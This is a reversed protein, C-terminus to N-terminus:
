HPIRLDRAPQDIWAAAQPRERERKQQEILAVIREDQPEREDAKIQKRRREINASLSRRERVVQELRRLVRLRFEPLGDPNGALFEQLYERSDDSLSDQLASTFREFLAPANQRTYEFFTYPFKSEDRQEVADLVKQVTRPVADPNDICTRAWNDLCFSTLQRELVASANLFVGPPEIPGDLLELPEGFYAIDRPSAAAMTITVANGDRRGARGIRQLYSSSSPPVSCM